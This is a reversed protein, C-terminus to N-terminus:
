AMDGERLMARAQVTDGVKCGRPNVMQAASDAHRSNELMEIQVSQAGVM